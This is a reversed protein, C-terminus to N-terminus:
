PSISIDDVTVRDLLLWSNADDFPSFSLIDFSFVAEDDGAGSVQPIFIVGYSKGSSASPAQQNFSDVIRTWGQWAGKQNIRLRFQVADDPDLVSSSVNFLACYIVEDNVLIDPSEWYSFAYVSGNANLGLYGSGSFSSPTDYPPVEGQFSWGETGDDFEFSMLEFSDNITTEEVMMEELYIWSNTDDVSSFSMVDFSLVIIDDYDGTVQPDFFLDYWKNNNLSPAQNDFSEVIRTWSQWSDKQNVRLRFQVTKDPIISSSGVLWRSRYLKGDQIQIDPSFWYSFCNTSDAPSFGIHGDSSTAMPTDYPPVQGYM